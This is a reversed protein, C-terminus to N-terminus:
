DALINLADVYLFHKKNATDITLGHVCATAAIFLDAKDMTKRKTKLEQVIKAAERAVVSDFDLIKFRSLLQNWFLLHEPSVGSMIEFETICSIYLEDYEIFHTTLRANRKDTKRFYEILVTSDVMLKKHAM